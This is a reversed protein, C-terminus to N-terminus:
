SDTDIVITCKRKQYRTRDEYRFIGHRYAVFELVWATLTDVAPKIEEPIINPDIFETDSCAIDSFLDSPKRLSLFERINAKYYVRIRMEDSLSDYVQGIQEPNCLTEHGFKKTYREIFQNRSPTIGVIDWVDFKWDPQEHIINYVWNYFETMHFFLVNDELLNEFCQCATSIQGRGCSTVSMASHINYLFSSSQGEAGYGSNAAKKDNAQQLDKVSALFEDGAQMAKFKEKKHIKRIDLMDDKIIEVNVNRKQSKPYFYVGSEAILPKSGNFWDVLHYLSTGALTNEYNNYIQVQTDKVRKAYIQAVMSEIKSREVDPHTACMAMTMRSIWEHKLVDKM